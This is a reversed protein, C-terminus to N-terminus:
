AYVPVAGPWGAAVACKRIAQQALLLVGIADAIRLLEDAPIVVYGREIESLRSRSIGAARAVVIGPLGANTRMGRITSGSM